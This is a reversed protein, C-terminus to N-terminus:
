DELWGNKPAMNPELKLSPLNPFSEDIFFSVIHPKVHNSFVQGVHDHPMM